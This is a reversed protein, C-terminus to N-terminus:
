LLKESINHSRSNYFSVITVDRGINIGAAIAQLPTNLTLNQYFITEHIFIAAGGHAWYNTNRKKFLGNIYKLKFFTQNSLMTEQM